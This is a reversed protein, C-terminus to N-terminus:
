DRMQQTLTPRGLRDKYITKKESLLQRAREISM